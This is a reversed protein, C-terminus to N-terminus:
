GLAVVCNPKAVPAKCGPFYKVGSLYKCSGLKINLMLHSLAFGGRTAPLHYVKVRLGSLVRGLVWALWQPRNFLKADFNKHTFIVEDGDNVCLAM